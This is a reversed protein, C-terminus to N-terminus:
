TTLLIYPLFLQLYTINLNIRDPYYIPQKSFYLVKYKIMHIVNRLNPNVAHSNHEENFRIAGM